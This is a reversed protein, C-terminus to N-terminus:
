LAFRAGLEMNSMIQPSNFTNNSTSQKLFLLSIHSTHTAIELYIKLFFFYSPLQLAFFSINSTLSPLQLVPSSCCAVYHCCNHHDMQYVILSPLYLQQQQQNNKQNDWKKRQKTMSASYFLIGGNPQPSSSSHFTLPAIAQSSSSCHVNCHMAAPM